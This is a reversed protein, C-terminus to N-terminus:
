PRNWCSKRMPLNICNLHQLNALKQMAFVTSKTKGFETLLDIYDKELSILDAPLYKGSTIKLAKTNILEIKASIFFPSQVGKALLYEYGRIAADYAQNTNLTRCLDFITNEDGNTRRNLALAQNLAQDYDKQQLFLWILLDAYITQQPEKQIRKFLASKLLDYDADGEYIGALSSEAQGIYGPNAPLFNLYEETLAAKDRKTRYLTILEYSFIAENNLLKRGQRFVKIANDISGNQYFQMGLMAIPGNDAPLKKILSEYLANAEDANGQQTYIAGLRLAYETEEPHKRMLKKTISEAEDLKKLGLLNNIFYPYYAENDQKYLKQFIDYAKQLDGNASYQQALQLDANQAFAMQGFWLFALVIYAALLKM